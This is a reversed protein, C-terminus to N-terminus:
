VKGNNYIRHTNETVEIADDVIIGLGYLFGFLVFFDLTVSTGVIDDAVHQFRFPVYVSLPVSLSVFCADTVGMFFMLILLVLIFGIIITNILEHFSTKTQKSQDGTIVVKLDRPLDEKQQMEVVTAKIKDAAEILNEGARKVINLTVVNKGDLRAY